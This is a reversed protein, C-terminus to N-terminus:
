NDGVKMVFLQYKDDEVKAMRLGWKRTRSLIQVANKETQVVPWRLVKGDPVSKGDSSVDGYQVITDYALDLASSDDQKAKKKSAETARKFIKENNQKVVTIVGTLIENAPKQQLKSFIKEGDSSSVM